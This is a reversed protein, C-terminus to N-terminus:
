PIGDMVPEIFRIDRVYSFDIMRVSSEYGAGVKAAVPFEVIGGAAWLGKFSERRDPTWSGALELFFGKKEGDRACNLVVKKYTLVSPTPNRGSKAGLIIRALADDRKHPLAMASYMKAQTSLTVEWLFKNFIPHTDYNDSIIQLSKEFCPVIAEPPYGAIVYSCGLQNMYYARKYERDSKEICKILAPIYIDRHKIADKAPDRVSDHHNDVLFRGPTSGKINDSCLTDSSVWEISDTSRVLQEHIDGDYSYLMPSFLSARTFEGEDPKNPFNFIAAYSKERDLLHFNDRLWKISEPKVREDADIFLVMKAGGLIASSIVQNRKMAFSDVDILDTHTITVGSVLDPVVMTNGVDKGIFAHKIFPSVSDVLMTVDDNKTIVCLAIDIPQKKEKSEITLM